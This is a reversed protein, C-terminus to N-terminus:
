SPHGVLPSCLVGWGLGLSLVLGFFVGEGDGGGLLFFDMLMGLVGAWVVVLVGVMDGVMLFVVLFVGAVYIIDYRCCSTIM